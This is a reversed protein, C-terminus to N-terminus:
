SPIKAALATLDLKLQEYSTTAASPQAGLLYIGSPLTIQETLLSRLRRRVVNRTVAPGLARGLAFAV